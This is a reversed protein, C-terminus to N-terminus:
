TVLGEGGMEVGQPESPSMDLRLAKCGAGFSPCAALIKVAAMVERRGEPLPYCQVFEDTDALCQVKLPHIPELSAPQVWLMGSGAAELFEM